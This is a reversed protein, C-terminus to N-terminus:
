GSFGFMSALAQNNERLAEYASYPINGSVLGRKADRFNSGSFGRAVAPFNKTHYQVVVLSDPKAVPLSRVLIADMFSYIATNAGIGLALSLAALATFVPSQRVM